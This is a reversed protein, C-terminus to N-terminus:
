KLVVSVGIADPYCDAKTFVSKGYCFGVHSGFARNDFSWGGGSDGNLTNAGSMRVLNTTLHGELTCSWSPNQVDLGCDRVDTARGFVCITEGVTFGSWPEVSLADRRVGPSAYFEAVDIHSPTTHWEVDGFLGRHQAQPDLNFYGDAPLWAQDIGTCHGATTVGTVGNADAVTWGTTCEYTGGDYAPMGGYGHQATNGLADAVTLAVGQRFEESLLQLIEEPDTPLGPQAALDATITGDAIDFGSSLDAYGLGILERNLRLHRDELELYSFPQHEAVIVDQGSAAIM